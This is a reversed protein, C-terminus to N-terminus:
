IKLTVKGVVSLNNIIRRTVVKEMKIRTQLSLVVKEGIIVFELMKKKAAGQKM